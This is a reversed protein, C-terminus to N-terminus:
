SLPLPSGGAPATPSLLAWRARSGCSVADLLTDVRGFRRRTSHCVRRQARASHTRRKGSGAMLVAAPLRAGRWIAPRRAPRADASPATAPPALLCCRGLRLHAIAELAATAVWIACGALSDLPALLSLLERVRHEPAGDEGVVPTPQGADWNGGASSIPACASSAPSLAPAVPRGAGRAGPLFRCGAGRAGSRGPGRGPMLIGLPDGAQGIKGLGSGLIPNAHELM